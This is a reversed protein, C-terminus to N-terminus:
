TRPLLVLADILNHLQDIPDMSPSSSDLTLVWIRAGFEARAHQDAAHDADSLSIHRYPDASSATADAVLPFVGFLYLGLGVALSLALGTFSVFAFKLGFRRHQKAM